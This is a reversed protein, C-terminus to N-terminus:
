VHRWSTKMKIYFMEFLLNPHCEKFAPKLHQQLIPVNAVWISPCCNILSLFVTSSNSSCSSVSLCVCYHACARVHEYVCHIHTLYWHAKGCNLMTWLQNALWWSGERLAKTLSHQGSNGRFQKGGNIIGLVPHHWASTWLTSPVSVGGCLGCDCSFTNENKHKNTHTHAATYDAMTFFPGTGANKLSALSSHPPHVPHTLLHVM